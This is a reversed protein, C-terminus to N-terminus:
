GVDEDSLKSALAKETDVFNIIYENFNKDINGEKMIVMASESPKIKYLKTRWEASSATLAVALLVRSTEQLYSVTNLLVSDPLNGIHPLSDTSLKARKNSEDCSPADDNCSMKQDIDKPAVGDYM